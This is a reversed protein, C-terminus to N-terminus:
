YVNGEQELCAGEEKQVVWPTERAVYRHCVVHWMGQRRRSIRVVPLLRQGVLTSLFGRNIRSYPFLWMVPFFDPDSLYTRTTRVM